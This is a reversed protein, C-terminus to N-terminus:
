SHFSAPLGLESIGCWYTEKRPDPTALLGTTAAYASRSRALGPPKHPLRVSTRDTHLSHLSSFFLCDGATFREANLIGYPRQPEPIRPGEWCSANSSPDLGSYLPWPEVPLSASPPCLPTLLFPEIDPVDVLGAAQPRPHSPNTPEYLVHVPWTKHDSFLIKLVSSHLPCTERDTSPWVALSHGDGGRQDDFPLFLLPHFMGSSYRSALGQVWLSPPHLPTAM